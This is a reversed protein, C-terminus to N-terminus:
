DMQAAIGKLRQHLARFVGLETMMNSCNFKQGGDVDVKTAPPPKIEEACQGIRHAM